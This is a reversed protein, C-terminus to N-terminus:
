PRIVRVKTVGFLGSLPVKASTQKPDIRLGARRVLNLLREALPMVMHRGWCRENVHGFPLYGLQNDPDLDDWREPRWDDPAEWLAPDRHSLLPLMLVDDSISIREDLAHFEPSAVRLLNWSVPLLRLSELMINWNPMYEPFPAGLWLANTVLASVTFCVPAALRRYLGMGHRRGNYTSAGGSVLAALNSVPSDPRPHGPLAAGAAIVTWTLKPTLELARDVMVLLRWPDEGFVLDRLYVHATHPWEGTLDVSTDEPKKLAAQVDQGVARMLASAESRRISRGQLPKFTPREWENAPRSRLIEDILM